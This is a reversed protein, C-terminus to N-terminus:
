TRNLTVGSAAQRPRARAATLVDRLIAQLRDPSIAKLYAAQAGAEFAREKLKPDLSATLFVVPIGATSPNAKLRRCTEFGDMGPMEVDLLIIEPRGAPAAQLAEAGSSATQVEYGEPALLNRALALFYPQDDVLLIRCPVQGSGTRSGGHSPSQTPAM